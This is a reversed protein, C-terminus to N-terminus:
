NAFAECFADLLVVAIHQEERQTPDTTDVFFEPPVYVIIRPPTTRATNAATAIRKSLTGSDSFTVLPLHQMTDEHRMTLEILLMTSPPMVAISDASTVKSDPTTAMALNSIRRAISRSVTDIGYICAEINELATAARSYGLHAASHPTADKGQWVHSLRNIADFTLSGAIGDPDIGVNEQFERLARETHAGFIGDCDGCTFGLVNLAHQLIEVDAGHFYPLHLFLSRDGLSFTADVLASWCRDDVEDSLPLDEAECFARVAAATDEGYAGDIGKPGLNYGLQNLRRQVDEVAEGTRGIRIPRM